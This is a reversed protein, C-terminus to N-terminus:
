IDLLNFIGPGGIIGAVSQSLHTIGDGLRLNSIDKLGESFHRSAGGTSQAGAELLANGLSKKEAATVDQILYQWIAAIAILFLTLLSITTLYDRM